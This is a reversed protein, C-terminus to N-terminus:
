GNKLAVLVSEVDPKFGRWLRYSEAAQEVLMGLGDVCKLCGSVNAQQLFSTQNKAYVMDYSLQANAFINNPIPLQINSLSASTANVIVDFIGCNSLDNYSTAQISFLEALTKAKDLNRNVIVVDAGYETLVGIVGRAAGGAGLLLVRAGNLNVGQRMIDRTLGIGDTNDGFWAVSGDSKEPQRILTNVAGAMKARSSCEICLSFAEEKCPVTVNAGVGGDQAFLRLSDRLNLNVLRKEYIIDVNEQKAFLSHIEPSRSHEIPNGFVAYLFSM